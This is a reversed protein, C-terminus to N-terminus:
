QLALSESKKRHLSASHNFFYDAFCRVIKKASFGDGFVHSSVSKQRYYEDDSHLRNVVQLIKETTAGTVILPGGVIGESRETSKRLVLTPIGLYTAEEQIGGSDSLLIWSRQLHWIFEPYTMPQVLKFRPHFREIKNLASQVAPNPHVPLVIEVDEHLACIQNAARLVADLPDGFNERRHITLVVKKKADSSFHSTQDLDKFIRIADIGTNGVTFVRSADVGEGLLNQVAHDTPCFNWRAFTSLLKRHVEEPFPNHIDGTRLGAEVHGVPIKNYFAALGGVFASTTDGQVLVVDFKEKAFLVDLAAIAGSVFQGISENPRMLDLKIDVPVNLSNIADVLMTSHQGTSIVTTKFRSDAKLLHVVSAMKIAEPRTGILCAIRPHM